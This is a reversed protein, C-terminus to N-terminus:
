PRKNKKIADDLDSLMQPALAAMWEAADSTVEAGHAAQNGFKILNSLASTLRPDLIGATRLVYLLPQIPTKPAGVGTSESLERLRREVEIRLGVMTLNPDTRALSRLTELHSIPKVEIKAEMELGPLEADMKATLQPGIKEVANMVDKLEIKIGGPLELSKLYQIIWPSVSIILLSVSIADVKLDPWILHTALFGLALASVLVKILWPPM